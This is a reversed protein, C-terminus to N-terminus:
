TRHIFAIKVEWLDDGSVPKRGPALLTLGAAAPVSTIAIKVSRKIEM